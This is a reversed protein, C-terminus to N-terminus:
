WQISFIYYGNKEVDFGQSKLEDGVYKPEIYSPCTIIENGKKIVDDNEEIKKLEKIVFDKAKNKNTKEIEAFLQNKKTTFTERMTM